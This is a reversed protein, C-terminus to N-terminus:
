HDSQVQLFTLIVLTVGIGASISVLTYGQHWLVDSRTGQLTATTRLKTKSVNGNVVLVDTLRGSLLMTMPQMIGAIVAIAMGAYVLLRDKM